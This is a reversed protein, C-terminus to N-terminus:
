NINVLILHKAEIKLQGSPFKVEVVSGAIKEVEGIENYTRSTMSTKADSRLKVYQGKRFTTNSISCRLLARLQDPTISCLLGTCNGPACAIADALVNGIRNSMHPPAMSGLWRWAALSGGIEVLKSTRALIHEGAVDAIGICM